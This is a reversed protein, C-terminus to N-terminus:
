QKADGMEGGGFASEVYTGRTTPLGCPWATFAGARIYSAEAGCLHLFACDVELFQKRKWGNQVLIRKTGDEMDRVGVLAMAHLVPDVKLPHEAGTFSFQTDDELSVAVRVKSLLVPGNTRLVAELDAGSDECVLFTHIDSALLGTLLCLAERSSGGGDREIVAWLDAPSRMALAFATVDVMDQGCPPVASTPSSSALISPTATGGGTVAANARHFCLAYHAVLVPAQGYCSGIGPHCRQVLSGPLQHFLVRAGSGQAWADMGPLGRFSRWTQWGEAAPDSVVRDTPHQVLRQLRAWM